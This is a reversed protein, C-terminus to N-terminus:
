YKVKSFQLKLASKYNHTIYILLLKRKIYDRPLIIIILKGRIQIKHEVQVPKNASVKCIYNGADAPEANSIEITNRNKAKVLKM